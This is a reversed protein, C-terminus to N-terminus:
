KYYKKVEEIFKVVKDVAEKVSKVTAKRFKIPLRAEYSAKEGKKYLSSVFTEMKGTSCDISMRFYNSNELYGNSWTKQDDFGVTIIHYNEAIGSKDNQKFYPVLTPIKKSLEERLENISFLASGKDSEKIFEVYDKM